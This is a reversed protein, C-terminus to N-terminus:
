NINIKKHRTLNSKYDCKYDCKNCFYVIDCKNVRNLHRDFNNIYKTKYGCRTCSYLVM